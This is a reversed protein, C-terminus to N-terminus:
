SELFADFNFKEGHTMMGGKPFNGQMMKKVEQLEAILADISQTATFTMIVEAEYVSWTDSVLAKEGIEHPEQTICCLAGIEHSLCGTMRIDGRGFEMKAKGKIM